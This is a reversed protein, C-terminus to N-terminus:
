FPDFNFPYTWMAVIILQSWLGYVFVSYLIYIPFIADGQRIQMVGHSSIVYRTIEKRWNASKSELM